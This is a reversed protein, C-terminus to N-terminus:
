CTRLFFAVQRTMQYKTSPLGVYNLICRVGFLWRRLELNSGPPFSQQFPDVPRQLPAM